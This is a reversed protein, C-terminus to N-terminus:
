VAIRQCERFRRLAYSRQGQMRSLKSFHNWKERNHLAREKYDTNMIKNLTISIRIQEKIDKSLTNKKSSLWRANL